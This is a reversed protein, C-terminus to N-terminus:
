GAWTDRWEISCTVDAEAPLTAVYLSNSGETVDPAPALYFPARPFQWGGYRSQGDITIVSEGSARVRAPMDALLTAGAVLLGEFEFRVGASANVLELRTVDQTGATVRIVPYARANGVNIASVVPVTTQGAPAVPVEASRLRVGYLRPDVARLAFAQNGLLVSRIDMERSLTIPRVWVQRVPRAPHRWILPWDEDRQPVLRDYLQLLRQETVERDGTGMNLRFLIQRASQLDVGRQAGDGRPLDRDSTRMEWGELGDVSEVPWNTDTGILLGDWGRLRYQYSFPALRAIAGTTSHTDVLPTDLSTARLPGFVALPAHWGDTDVAPDTLGTATFRVPGSSGGKFAAVIAVWDRSSSIKAGLASSDTGSTVTTHVTMRSRQDEDWDSPSTRNYLVGLGGTFGSQSSTYRNAVVGIILEDAQSRTGTSGSYANKSKDDDSTVKDLASSQAIGTYELLQLQISRRDSNSVQVSTMSPANQRYYVAVTLEDHRDRRALSFGSPGTLPDSTYSSHALVAIAVVLSGASTPTDFSAKATRTGDGTGKYAAQRLAIAM